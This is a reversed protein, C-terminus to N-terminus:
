KPSLLNKLIAQIVPVSISNGAQRYLQSNSVPKVFDDPFGQLRFVELPTLKRIRYDHTLHKVPSQGGGNNGAMITPSIGETSYIRSNADNGGGTSGIVKIQSEVVVNDKQVSTLCNSTGNENIELTQEFKDGKKRSSPNEPNRGRFAGIKPEGETAIEYGSKTASKVQIQKPQKYDTASLCGSIGNVSLIDGRQGGTGSHGVIKIMNDTPCLAANARLCNAIDDEDKFQVAFGTGKDTHRESHMELMTLMKESLYYKEDVNDELIDKLRLELPITRPFVFDNPLDNRIGILFVRERNQPLGYDKTNLVQWHLNYGLINLQSVWIDFTMLNTSERKGTLILWVEKWLNSSLDLALTILRIINSELAYLYTKSTIQSNIEMLTTYLKGNKSNEDLINNAFLSTNGNIDVTKELISTVKHTINEISFLQSQNLAWECGKLGLPHIQEIQSYNSKKTIQSTKTLLYKLKRKLGNKVLNEWKEFDLERTTTYFTGSKDMKLHLKKAYNLSLYNAISRALSGLKNKPIFEPNWKDINEFNYLLLYLNNLHTIQSKSSLLGKVNEIIFYKPSQNKVWKYFDYFLLGRPDLEGLRKGALSFSQCPIGSVNVDSYWEDGEYDYKTMDDYMTETNHNALFTEKAFRDIECAFVSKHPIELNKMAQEFSGIGSCFSSIKLM